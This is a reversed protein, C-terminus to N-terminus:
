GMDNEVQAKNGKPYEGWEQLAEFRNRQQTNDRRPNPGRHNKVSKPDTMWSGFKSPSPDLNHSAELHEENGAAIPGQSTTEPMIGDSCNDRRHGITIQSILPKRLGMEICVLPYQGRVAMATNIGIKLPTGLVQELADYCVDKIRGHSNQLGVDEIRDRKRKLIEVCKMM